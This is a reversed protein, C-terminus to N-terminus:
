RFLAKIVDVFLALVGLAGLGILWLPPAPLTTDAPSGADTGPGLAAEADNVIEAVISDCANFALGEVKPSIDFQLVTIDNPEEKM